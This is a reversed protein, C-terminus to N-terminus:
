AFWRFPTTETGTGYGITNLDLVTQVKPQYVAWVTGGGLPHPIYFMKEANKRQIEFFVEKRKVPDLESQQKLALAKMEPDNVKSHNLPDETFMRIPYSGGEPFPTEPGFALGKFNGAFTQTIYKSSYDQVDANVKLGIAAFFQINAEAVTAFAAGYRAAAYAYTANIEPFGAASMLAKADAVNYKFYKASDGQEKSQPDLWLREMGAPILNNWPAKVDIGQSQLKKVNYGLDLLADRDLSMSIALRVRPDKNWPSSPDPDFYIFDLQQAVQGFLQAGNIQKKINVLDDSTADLYDLNGALFQALRTPYEPIIAIDVGDMLPFGTVHWAPNKKFKFGVSPTYSDMIWPGTGIMQKGPDVGGGDSEKPLIWLLNTDALVDLFAAYPAKLTFKMTSADPYEVKDVFGVQSSNQTTKSTMRGWSYKLDDTVLERGNVPAVNHFKIGPRMKITWVLGDPSPEASQAIDPIPKLDKTKVGIGTGYRFLRSYPYAALSKTLFSLNGFPDITPPDGTFVWKYTGGRKANAFPDAATPSAKAKDPTPTALSTNDATKAAGGNDDDGCGVLALGAAGAGVTVAGGLFGRRSRRVQWYRSWYGTSM